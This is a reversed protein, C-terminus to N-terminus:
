KNIANKVLQLFTKEQQEWSFVANYKEIIEESPIVAQVLKTLDNHWQTPDVADVLKIANPFYSAVECQGETNTAFVKVGAQLYQLIKNTITKNRSEPYTNELALGIDFKSLLKHLEHHPVQGYMELTHGSDFPFITNLTDRYADSCDGILVLKIPIELQKLAVCIKEIGRGEGITQSFWVLSVTDTTNLAEKIDPEIEFGNYLVAVQKSSQYALSISSAMAKSPCSVYAGNKLAYSELEKLLGIPRNAHMYDRSYWDEFDFAVKKGSQILKKGVYLACDVHAIYLDANEHLARKYIAIPDKALLYVTDVGIRKLLIALLTRSKYFIKKVLSLENPILNVAAIYVVDNGLKDLIARDREMHARSNFITVIVVKYGNRSLTGAEKWVRPNASLHQDTVICIKPQM